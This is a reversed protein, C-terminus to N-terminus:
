KKLKELTSRFENLQNRVQNALDTAESRIQRLQQQQSVTMLFLFVEFSTRSTSPPRLFLIIGNNDTEFLNKFLDEGKNTPTNYSNAIQNYLTWEDQTLDIKKNDIIQIMTFIFFSLSIM